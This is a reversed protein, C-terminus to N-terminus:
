RRQFYQWVRDNIHYPMDCSAIPFDTINEEEIVSRFPCRFCHWSDWKHEVALDLCDSYFPCFVNREGKEPVPNAKADM